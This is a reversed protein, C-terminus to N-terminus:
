RDTLDLAMSDMGPLVIINIPLLSKEILMKILPINRLGPVFYGNAGAEASGADWIFYLIVPTGAIHLAAFQKAKEQQTLNSRKIVNM